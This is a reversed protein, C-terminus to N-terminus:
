IGRHYVLWEATLALLAVLALWPWLEALDLHTTSAAVPRSGAV